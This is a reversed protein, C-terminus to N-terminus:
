SVTIIAEHCGIDFGVEHCNLTINVWLALHNRLNSLSDVIDHKHCIKSVKHHIPQFLKMNAHCNDYIQM